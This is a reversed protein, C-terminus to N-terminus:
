IYPVIDVTLGSRLLQERCADP